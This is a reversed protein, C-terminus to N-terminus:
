DDVTNAVGVLDLLHSLVLKILQYLQTAVQVAARIDSGNRNFVTQYIFRTHQVLHDALFHEQLLHNLEDRLAGVM